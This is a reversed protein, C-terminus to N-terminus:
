VSLCPSSLVLQTTQHHFVVVLNPFACPVELILQIPKSSDSLRSSVPALSPVTLIHFKLLPLTRFGACSTDISPLLPFPTNRVSSHNRNARTEASRAQVEWFPAKKKSRGCLRCRAVNGGGRGAGSRADGGVRRLWGGKRVTPGHPIREISLFQPQQLGHPTRLPFGFLFALSVLSVLHGPKHPAPVSLSRFVHSMCYNNSVHKASTKLYNLRPPIVSLVTHTQTHLALAMAATVAMNQKLIREAFALTPKPQLTFVAQFPPWARAILNVLDTYGLDHPAEDSRRTRWAWCYPAVCAERIPSRTPCEEPIDVRRVPFPPVQLNDRVTGPPNSLSNGEVRSCSCRHIKGSAIFNGEDTHLRPLGSPTLTPLILTVELPCVDYVEREPDPRETRHLPLPDM